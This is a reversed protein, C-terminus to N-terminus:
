AGSLRRRMEEPLCEGWAQVARPRFAARGHRAAGSEFEDALRALASPYGVLLEAHRGAAEALFHRLAAEDAHAPQLWVGSRLASRLGGGTGELAGGREDRGVLVARPTRWDLGMWGVHRMEDAMRRKKAEGDIWLRRDPTDLGGVAHWEPQPTGGVVLEHSFDILERDTFPPLDALDAISRVESPRVGSTAFRRKGFPVRG